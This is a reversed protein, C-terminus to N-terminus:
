ENVINGREWLLKAMKSKTKGNVLFLLVEDGPKRPWRNLLRFPAVSKVDNQRWRNLLKCRGCKQRWQNLWSKTLLLQNPSNHRCFRPFIKFPYYNNIIIWSWKTSYLYRGIRTCIDRPIQVGSSWNSLNGTTTWDTLQIERALEMESQVSRDRMGRLNIDAFNAQM